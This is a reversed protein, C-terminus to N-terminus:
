SLPVHVVSNQSVTSLSSFQTTVSSYHKWSQLDTVIFNNNINNWKGDRVIHQVSPQAGLIVVSNLGYIYMYM